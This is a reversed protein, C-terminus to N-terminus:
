TGGWKVGKEIYKRTINLFPVSYNFIQLADYRRGHIVGSVISFIDLITQSDKYDIRTEKGDNTIYDYVAKKLNDKLNDKPELKDRNHFDTQMVKMFNTFTMTKLAESAYDIGDKKCIEMLKQMKGDSLKQSIAPVIYNDKLFEEMLIRISIATGYSHKITAFSVFNEFQEKGKDPFKSYIDRFQEIFDTIIKNSKDKTLYTKGTQVDFEVSM